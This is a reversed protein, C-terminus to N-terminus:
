QWHFGTTWTLVGLLVFLMVPSTVMFGAFAAGITDLRGRGRVAAVREALLLAVCAALPFAFWGLGVVLLAIVVLWAVIGIAGGVWLLPPPRHWPTDGSGM